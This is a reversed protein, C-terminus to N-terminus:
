FQYGVSLMVAGQRYKHEDERYRNNLGLYGALRFQVSNVTYGVGLGWQINFPTFIGDYLDESLSGGEGVLTLRGSLGFDCKPGAFVNLSSNDTDMLKFGFMVPVDIGLEVYKVDPFRGYMETESNLNEFLDNKVNVRSAFFGVAPELYFRNGMEVNFAVDLNTVASPKFVDIKIPGKQMTGPITLGVSLRPEIFNLKAGAFASSAALIVAVATLLLKKM